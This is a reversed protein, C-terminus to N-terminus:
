RLDDQILEVAREVGREQRMAAGLSRAHAALSAEGALRRLAAALRPVTLARQPIPPPGAGLAAVRQGWFFQDIALPLILTPLGHRLSAATTGSGGHHAAAAVRPFLWDHPAARIPLVGPWLHARDVSVGEPLAFVARLGTEMLAQLVVATTREPFRAGPSGFGVYVPPPGEQLFRDLEPPPTYPATEELFWAGTVHHRPPWDPPPPALRPSYAYLVLSGAAYLASFPGGPPAPKLGLREVRWRNITGRWPLWTLLEVLRHTFANYAGGLSFTFPLLPSPHLRTRGLPQFFAWLCPVGLGEAVHAGWTSPLGALVAGAGQCAEWATDLLRAYLPAAQHAFRLTAALSRLPNGDYTLASQGGPRALLDSPNGELLALPLGARRAMEGFSAHTAVRVALGARQLGKGLALLPQVDGRTGSGLLM